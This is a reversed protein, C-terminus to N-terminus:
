TASTGHASPREHHGLKRERLLGGCCVNADFPETFREMHRQYRVTYKGELLISDEKAVVTSVLRVLYTFLSTVLIVM